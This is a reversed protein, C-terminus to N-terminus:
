LSLLIRYVQTLRTMDVTRELRTPKVMEWEEDSVQLFTNFENQTINEVVDSFVNLM